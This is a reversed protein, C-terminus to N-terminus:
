LESLPKCDFLQAIQRDINGYDSSSAPTTKM